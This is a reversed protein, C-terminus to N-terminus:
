FPISSANSYVAAPVPSLTGMAVLKESHLYCKNNVLVLWPQTVLGLPIM